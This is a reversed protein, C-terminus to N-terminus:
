FERVLAATVRQEREESDADVRAAQDGRLPQVPRESRDLLKRVQVPVHQEEPHTVRRVGRDVQGFLAEAPRPEVAVRFRRWPDPHLQRVDGTVAVGEVLDLGRECGDRGLRADAVAAGSQDGDPVDEGARGSEDLGVGGRQQAVLGVAATAGRKLLSQDAQLRSRASM